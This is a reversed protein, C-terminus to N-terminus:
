TIKNNCACYLSVNNRELASVFLVSWKLCREILAQQEEHTKDPSLRLTNYAHWATEQGSYRTALSTCAWGGHSTGHTWLSSWGSQYPFHNCSQMFHKDTHDSYERHWQTYFSFPLLINLKPVLMYWKPTLHVVIYLSTGKLKQIM